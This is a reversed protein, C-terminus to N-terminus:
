NEIQDKTPGWLSVLAKGQFKLSKALLRDMDPVFLVRPHGGAQALEKAEKRARRASEVPRLRARM